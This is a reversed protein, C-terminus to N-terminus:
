KGSGQAKLFIIRDKALKTWDDDPYSSVVKEYYSLAQVYDKSEEALRGLSFLAHAIGVSKGTYKDVVLKYHAIAQDIAGREEADVAANQLALPAIYITPFTSYVTMWRKEAGAWDKDAEAMRALMTLARAAAFQRPYAKVVGELGSVLSTALEAKKAKDDTTSWTSLKEALQEVKVASANARSNDVVSYAAVVVVAVVLAALIVFLAIRNKRLFIDLKESLRKKEGNKGAAATSSTKM